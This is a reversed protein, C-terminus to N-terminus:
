SFKSVHKVFMSPYRAAVGFSQINMEKIGVCRSEKSIVLEKNVEKASFNNIGYSKSTM